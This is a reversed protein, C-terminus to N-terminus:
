PTRAAAILADLRPRTLEGLQTAAVVGDPTILITTPMGQARYAAATTGGPDYVSPYTVGADGLMQLAARRSDNHAVGLFAVHPYALSAEQLAPLERKCPLCWSAFLNVVVLRGRLDALTRTTSPDALDALAIPPADRGIVPLAGRASVRLTVGAALIVLVVVIGAGALRRHSSSARDHATPDGGAGNALGHAIVDDLRDTMGRGACTVTEL